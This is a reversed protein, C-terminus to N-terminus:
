GIVQVKAMANAFPEAIRNAAPGFHPYPPQDYHRGLRDVGVFGLELRRAQPANTGVITAPFGNWRGFTTSITRLYDGTVRRPGPRGSANAKVYTELLYGYRNLVANVKRDVVRAQLGFARGAVDAGIVTASM